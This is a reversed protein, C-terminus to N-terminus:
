AAEAEAGTAGGAAQSGIAKNDDVAGSGRAMLGGPRRPGSPVVDTAWPSYRLAHCSPSGVLALALPPPVSRFLLQQRASLLVGETYKGPEQRVAEVMLRQTRTLTRFRAIEGIESEHITLLWWWECMSLVLRMEDPLDSVNEAAFWFWVQLMRWRKTSLAIRRGLLPHRAVLHGEGTLFLTPRGDHQTAEGLAQVQDILGAYALALADECGDKALTGMEVLTVDADPWPAEYRDFLRGRLGRTFALMSQGMDAAREQRKPSLGSERRMEILREAVVLARPHPRGELRAAQAALIIARVILYRDARGLEDLEKPEGGAIMMLASLLMEGLISIEDDLRADPSSEGGRDIAPVLTDGAEGTEAAGAKEAACLAAMVEPDDLLRQARAFPPLSVGAQAQIKVVRTSLGMEGFFRVLPEFSEGVDAIVLRPRHVAMASLVLQRLLVRSGSGAGGLMFLHANGLRDRSDLPDIWLPEGGRNWLSVGPHGTGRHRGYVPLMAAIHSTFILRSRRMHKADFVPDFGMPLGQVFADLPTLDHEPPIFRL